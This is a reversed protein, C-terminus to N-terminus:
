EAVAPHAIVLQDGPRLQEAVVELETGDIDALVVDCGRNVCEAALALGIGSAAGTVVACRGEFVRMTGVITRVRRALGAQSPLPRGAAITRM